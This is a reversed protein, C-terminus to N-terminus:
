EKRKARLAIVSVVASFFIMIVSMAAANNSDGTPIMGPDNDSPKERYDSVTESSEANGKDGSNESLSSESTSDSSTDSVTESSVDSREDSSEESQENSTEGSQEGSSEESQENSTEGSQEGSTEGSQEDSSEDSQEENEDTITLRLVLVGDDFSLTMEHTGVPIDVLESKGIAVKGYRMLMNSEINSGLYEGDISVSAIKSESNTQIRLGSSSDKSWTIDTSETTIEKEELPKIEDYGAYAMIRNSNKALPQGRFEEVEDYDIQRTIVQGDSNGNTYTLVHTETNFDVVIAVHDFYEGTGDWSFFILGGPKYPIEYPDIDRHYYNNWDYAVLKHAALPTYWVNEQELCFSAIWSDADYEIRPEACYSYYYKRLREENYYGAQYMCWSTFIACWNCDLYQASEDRNMVYRQAWRTYETNGTDYDNMRRETGSWLIGDAEAQAIDIGDTAYNQYGEQSLAAALTKEMTTKEASDELAARLKAYFPSNKYNDSYIINEDPESASAPIVALASLIATSTLISIIKKM